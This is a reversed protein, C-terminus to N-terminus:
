ELITRGDGRWMMAWFQQSWDTQHGGLYRSKGLAVRLRHLLAAFHKDEVSARSLDM